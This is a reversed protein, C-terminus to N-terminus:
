ARRVEVCKVEGRHDRGIWSGGCMRSSNIWSSNVNCKLLGTPPRRRKKDLGIGNLRQSATVTESSNLRKWEGAEELAQAILIDADGITGTYMKANHQKWIGWLLWPIAQRYAVPISGRELLGLFYEMYEAVSKVAQQQHFM